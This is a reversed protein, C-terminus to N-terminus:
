VRIDIYLGKASSREAGGMQYIMSALGDAAYGLRVRAAAAEAPTEPPPRQGANSGGADASGARAGTSETADDTRVGADRPADARPAADPSGSESRRVADSPEGAAARVGAASAMGGDYAGAIPRQGNLPATEM